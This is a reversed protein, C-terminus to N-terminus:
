VSVWICQSTQSEPSLRQILEDYCKIYVHIDVPKIFADSDSFSKSKGYHIELERTQVKYKYMYMNIGSSFFLWHVSNRNQM